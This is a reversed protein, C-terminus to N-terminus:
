WFHQAAHVSHVYLLPLILERVRM